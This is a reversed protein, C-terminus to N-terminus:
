KGDAKRQERREERRELRQQERTSRAADSRKAAVGRPRRTFPGAFPSLVRRTRAAGCDPCAPAPADFSAREEFRAGCQECEFDYLPM